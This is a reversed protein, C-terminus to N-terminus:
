STFEGVGVCLDFIFYNTKFALRCQKCYYAKPSNHLDHTFNQQYLAKESYYLAYFNTDGKLVISCM